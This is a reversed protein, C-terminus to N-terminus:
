YSGNNITKYSGYLGMFGWCGTILWPEVGSFGDNEASRTPPQEVTLLRRYNQALNIHSASASTTRQNASTVFGSIDFSVRMHLHKSIDISLYILPNTCIRKMLDLEIQNSSFFDASSLLKLNSFIQM